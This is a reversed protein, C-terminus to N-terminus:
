SNNCKRVSSEPSSLDFHSIENWFDILKDVAVRSSFYKEVRKRANSSITARKCCDYILKQIAQTLADINRPEICVGCEEDGNFNLIEPIAGVTTGIIPKKLAMAELIVNPAGESYSPLIFIDGAMICRLTENNSLSGHFILWSDDGFKNAIKKLEQQFSQDCPGVIDLIINNKQILNVCSSILERIGKAPIVHGAYVLKIPGEKFISDSLKEDMLKDIVDLDVMNPLISINKDPLAKKLAKLSAIDLVIAASVMKMLLSTLKWEIGNKSIIQPMRGMRYHVVSPVDFWKSIWIIIVDKLTAPGGSTCLHLLSPRYTKLKRYVYVTDRIAQISGGIARALFLDTTIARWRVFTDVCIISPSPRQSLEKLLIKTWNVIGGHDPPPMPAILLIQPKISPITM